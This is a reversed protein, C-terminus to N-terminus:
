DLKKQTRLGCMALLIPLMRVLYSFSFTAMWITAAAGWSSEEGFIKLPGNISLGWTFVLPQVLAAVAMITAFAAIGKAQAKPCISEKSISFLSAVQVPVLLLYIATLTKAAASDFPAYRNWGSFIGADSLVTNTLSQLASVISFSNELVVMLVIAAVLWGLAVPIEQWSKTAETM